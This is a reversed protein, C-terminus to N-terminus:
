RNHAIQWLGLVNVALDRQQQEVLGHLVVGEGAEVKEPNRAHDAVRQIEQLPAHFVHGHRLQARQRAMERAEDMVRAHWVRSQLHQEDQQVIDCAEPLGIHAPRTGRRTIQQTPTNGNRQKQKIQKGRADLVCACLLM